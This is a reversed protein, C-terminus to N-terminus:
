KPVKMRVPILRLTQDNGILVNGRHVGPKLGKCTGEVSYSSGFDESYGVDIWAQDSRVTLGGGEVNRVKTKTNPCSGLNIEQLSTRPTENPTSKDDTADSGLRVEDGDVNGDDDTDPDCPDTRYTREGFATLGDLDHDGQSDRKSPRLCARKEEYGTPLGDRDSDALVIVEQTDVSSLKSAATGKLRLLHKGASLRVARRAGTGLAGDRDSSWRLDSGGLEGDTYDYAGGWLVIRQGAVPQPGYPPAYIETLPKKPPIEFSPTAETDTNYGDTAEIFLKGDVTAQAIKTPFEFEGESLGSALLERKIANSRRFYVNYRIDDSDSDAAQWTLKFGTDSESLEVESLDPAVNTFTQTFLSQSGERIDFGTAGEPIAVDLVTSGFWQDVGHMQHDSLAFDFTSIVGESENFFALTLNGDQDEPTPKGVLGDSKLSYPVQLGAENVYIPLHLYETTQGAIAAMPPALRPMVMLSTRVDNWEFGENFIPDVGGVSPAMLTQPEPFDTQTLLNVLPAGNVLSILNNGSHGGPIYHPSTTRVEGLCHTMEHAIVPGTIGSVNSDFGGGAIARGSPAINDDGFGCDGGGRTGTSAGANWGYDIRDRAGASDGSALSANVRDISDQIESNVRAGCAAMTESDRCRRVVSSLVYRLGPRASGPSTVLAGTGAPTPIMREVHGLMAPVVRSLDPGWTRYDPASTPSEFPSIFMRLPKTPRLVAEGLDLTRPGSLDEIRLELDFDYRGIQRLDAGNIWCQFTPSGNFFGVQFLNVRPMPVGYAPRRFVSGDPKRIVCASYTVNGPRGYTFVQARVHLNKGAVYDYPVVAEVDYDLGHTIRAVDLLPEGPRDLGTPFMGWWLEAWTNPQDLNSSPPWTYTSANIGTHSVHLGSMQLPTGAGLLALPIRFEASWANANLTFNVARWESTTPPGWGSGTGRFASPVGSETLTIKFDDTNPAATGDHRGDLAISVASSSNARPMRPICIFAFDNSALVRVIAPSAVNPYAVRALGPTSAYEECTGNMAPVPNRVSTRLAVTAYYAHAYAPVISAILGGAFAATISAIAIKRSM